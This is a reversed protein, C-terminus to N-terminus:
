TEGRTRCARVLKTAAHAGIMDLAATARLHNTSNRPTIAIAEEADAHAEHGRQLKLYCFSRNRLILARSLTGPAYKPLSMCRGHM